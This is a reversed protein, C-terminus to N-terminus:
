REFRIRHRAQGGASAAVPQPQKRGSRVLNVLSCHPSARRKRNYTMRLGAGPRDQCQCRGRQAPRRSSSTRYRSCPRWSAAARTVNLFSGLLPLNSYQPMSNTGSVQHQPRLALTLKFDPRRQDAANGKTRIRRWRMTAIAEVGAPALGAPTKRPAHSFLACAREAGLRRRSAQQSKAQQRGRRLGLAIYEDRRVGLLAAPCLEVLRGIETRRYALHFTRERASAMGPEIMRTAWRLLDGRLRQEFLRAAKDHPRVRPQDAIGLRKEAARGRYEIRSGPYGVGSGDSVRLAKDRESSHLDHADCRLRGWGRGGRPGPTLDLQEVPM